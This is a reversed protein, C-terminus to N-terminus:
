ILTIWHEFYRNQWIMKQCRARSFLKQNSDNKPNDHSWHLGFFVRLIKLIAKLSRPAYFDDSGIVYEILDSSFHSRIPPVNWFKSIPNPFFRAAFFTIPDSFVSRITKIPGARNKGLLYKLETGKGAALQVQAHPFM